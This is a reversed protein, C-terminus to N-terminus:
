AVRKIIVSCEDIFVEDGLTTVKAQFTLYKVSVVAEDKPYAYFRFYIEDADNASYIMEHWTAGDDDSFRFYVPRVVVSAHWRWSIAYEYVGAGRVPTVLAIVDTYTPTSNTYGSVIDAHDYTFEVGAAAQSVGERDIFRFSMLDWDAALVIDQILGNVPYANDNLSALEWDADYSYLGEIIGDGHTVWYDVERGYEISVANMTDFTFTTVGVDNSQRENVVKIKVYSDVAVDTISQVAWEIGAVTIRDGTTLALLETSRNTAGDDFYSFWLEDVQDTAHVCIGSAPAAAVLSKTYNWDFDATSAVDPKTVVVILKVVTGVPYPRHIFPFQRRGTETATFEHIHVIVNDTAPNLVVMIRYTQGETARIRLNEPWFARLSTFQAGYVVQKATQNLYNTIPEGRLYYAEGQEQPAPRLSTAANAVMTFNGDVVVDGQNYPTSAPNWQGKWTLNDLDVESWAEDLMDYHKGDVPPFEPYTLLDGKVQVKDGADTGDLYIETLEGSSMKDAIQRLAM